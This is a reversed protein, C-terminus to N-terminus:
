FFRLIIIDNLFLTKFFLSFLNATIRLLFSSLVMKVTTLAYLLLRFMPFSIWVYVRKIAKILITKNITSLKMVCEFFNFQTNKYFNFLYFNLKVNFYFKQWTLIEQEIANIASHLWECLWNPIFSGNGVQPRSNLGM